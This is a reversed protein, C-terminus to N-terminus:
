KLLPFYCKTVERAGLASRKLNVDLESPFSDARSLAFNGGKFFFPFFSFYINANCARCTYWTVKDTKGTQVSCVHFYNSM